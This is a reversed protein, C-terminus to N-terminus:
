PKEQEGAIPSMSRIKPADYNSYTPLRQNGQIMGVNENNCRSTGGIISKVKNSEDQYAYDGGSELKMPTVVIINSSKKQIPIYVNPTM